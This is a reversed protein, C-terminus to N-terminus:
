VETTSQAISSQKRSSWSIMAYGLSFCYGSTSNRDVLSGVWYSDAYGDLLVGGRSSYTLGFVISGRLYRLVHKSFVWHRHRPESM